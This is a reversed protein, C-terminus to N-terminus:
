HLLSTAWVAIQGSFGAVVAIEALGVLWAILLLRGDREILALAYVLLILGFPYNTLPLPLALMLGLVMLMVANFAHAVPHDLLCQDRPKTLREIRELWGDMRDRFRVLTRRQVRRRAMPGPLWPRRLRLFLQAGILIIFVGCVSGQGLPLPIFCPLLVLLLFLGFAREHFRDLLEALSMSGAPDGEALRELLARTGLPTPRAPDEAGPSAVDSM